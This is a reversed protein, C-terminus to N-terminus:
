VGFGVVFGLPISMYFWKMDIWDNDEDGEDDVNPIPGPITDDGICSPTLPPGCLDYNGIFSLASFSQFQTGSPIRGYLNNYSINLHSLFTLSAMSQPIVGTLQNMSVDFSELITM